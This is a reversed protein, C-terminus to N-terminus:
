FGLTITLPEDNRVIKIQIEAEGAAAILARNFAAPSDVETSNVATVQDGVHIKSEALSGQRVADVRLGQTGPTVRIGVAQLIAHSAPDREPINTTPQGPFGPPPDTAQDPQLDPLMSADGIRATLAIQAQNRWVDIVTESGPPLSRIMEIFQSNSRLAQGNMTLVVDYPRLGAAEAPGGPVVEEILVGRPEPLGLRAAAFATMDMTAIGLYGSPARGRGTILLFADWAENSPIAFGIGQPASASGPRRLVATNIGIVEGRHNILPGGSNGPNIPTDAQFYSPGTDSMRRDLASVIGKTVSESLGFPNGVAFVIQGARVESSDGIRLAAFRMGPPAVLRLVAIDYSVISGLYEADFVQRRGNPMMCTIRLRQNGAVVHHNTIIHGESTVIVGSGLPREFQRKGQLAGRVEVTQLSHIGVVSPVVAATLRAYEENLRSLLPVDTEDLPPNEPLTLPTAAPDAAERGLILSALGYRESRLGHALLAGIAIAALLLLLLMQKVLPHM